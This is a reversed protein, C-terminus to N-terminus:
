EFKEFCLIVTLILRLFNRNSVIKNNKALKCFTLLSVRNKSWRLEGM